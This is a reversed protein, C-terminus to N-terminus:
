RRHSSCCASTPSSCPWTPWPHGSRALEEEDGAVDAHSENGQMTSFGSTHSLLQRITIAGALQGVFADLCQSLEADVGDAARFPLQREFALRLPV